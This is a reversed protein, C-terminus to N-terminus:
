EREREREGVVERESETWVPELGWGCSGVTFESRLKLTTVMAGLCESRGAAPTVVRGEVCVSRLWDSSLLVVGVGRLGGRVM